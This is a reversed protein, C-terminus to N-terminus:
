SQLLQLHLSSLSRTRFPHHQRQALDLHLRCLALAQSEGALLRLDGLLVGGGFVEMAAHCDKRRIEHKTVRPVLEIIATDAHPDNTEPMTPSRISPAEIGSGARCPFVTRRVPVVCLDNGAAAKVAAPDGSRLIQAPRITPRSRSLHRGGRWAREGGVSDAAPIRM